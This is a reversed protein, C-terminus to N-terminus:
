ERHNSSDKDTDLMLVSPDWQEGEGWILAEPVHLGKSKAQEIWRRHAAIKQCAAMLQWKEAFKEEDSEFHEGHADGLLYLNRLDSEGAFM